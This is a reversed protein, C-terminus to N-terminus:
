NAFRRRTEFNMGIDRGSMGDGFDTGRGGDMRDIGFGGFMRDDGDGGFMVDAGGHGKMLDSHDGGNMVDRGNGGLLTDGGSHGFLLDHGANGRIIDRGQHGSLEDDGGLGSLKDNGGQGFLKDNGLGGILWDNGPGGIIYDRGGGAYVIDDGSGADVTDHGPGSCIIDDGGASSIIDDGGRAVIVDDGDTGVINDAKWTGVITAVHGACTIPEATPEEVVTDDASTGSTSPGSVSLEYSGLTAFTTYHEAGEASVRVYYKGVDLSVGHITAGRTEYTSAHLLLGDVDHLSLSANLNPRVTDVVVEFDVDSTALVDFSFWDDDNTREIVGLGTLNESGNLASAQTHGSGHDDVRYGFGNAAGAVIALDDAGRGMNASPGTNTAGTYSGDDWQSYGTFYSAGMIPAWSDPDDSAGHGSYYDSESDGDHTLGLSHGVEHSITEGTSQITKNFVFTPENFGFHNVYALGGCSCSFPDNTIITRIGYKDSEGSNRLLDAPSPEVTSVNVDFPAFDEAVAQWAAYIRSLEENSFDLYNDDLSFPPSVIEDIESWQNWYTGATTHGDFDLFLTVHADPNSNLSFVDSFTPQFGLDSSVSGAPESAGGAPEAIGKDVYLINNATDAALNPDALLEEVLEFVPVGNNTAVDAIAIGIADLADQGYVLVEAANSETFPGGQGELEASAVGVGTSAFLVTSLISMVFIRKTKTARNNMGESEPQVTPVKIIEGIENM